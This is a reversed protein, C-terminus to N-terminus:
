SRTEKGNFNISDRSLLNFRDIKTKIISFHFINSDDNSDYNKKLKKNNIM